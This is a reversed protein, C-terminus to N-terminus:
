QAVGTVMPVFTVQTLDMRKFEAGLRTWTSLTQQKEPGEPAVLVGGEALQSLLDMPLTLVAATMIIGDFPRQSRWGQHGDGIRFKVNPINLEALVNAARASLEPIREITFVRTALKSLVATQYGSGTGIELVTSLRSKKGLLRETMLAVLYPQSITQRFGIPLATNEYARGKLAEEVFHHRPIERIARLVEENIIGQERLRNVMRERPRQSVFGGFKLEADPM